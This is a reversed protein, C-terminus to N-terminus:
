GRKKAVIAAAALAVPIVALAVSANGTPPNTVVPAPEDVDDAVPEDDDDDVVPEDDDDDAVIDSDDDDDDLTEDDADVGADASVDDSEGAVLEVEMSDWFWMNSTALKMSHIYTAYNNTTAAGDMIADWDFSIATKTWDFYETNNLSMTYGENVILAGAFLNQGGWDMGLMGTGEPSYFWDYTHDGFEKYVTSGEWDNAVYVGIVEHLDRNAYTYNGYEQANLVAAAKAYESYVETKLVPVARYTNSTIKTEAVAFGVASQATNFKFTVTEFNEIADNLVAGVNKYGKDEGNVNANELYSIINRNDSKNTMFPAKFKTPAAFASSTADGAKGNFFIGWEQSQLKKNVSEIDKLDHKMNVVVVINAMQPGGTAPVEDVGAKPATYTIVITDDATTPVKDTSIGYKAADKWRYTAPIVNDPDTADEPTAVEAVVTFAKTEGAAIDDVTNNLKLDALNVAVTSKVGGITAIATASEVVAPVGPTGETAAGGGILTPKGQTNVTEVPVEIIDGGILYGETVASYGESWIDRTVTIPAIAKNTDIYQGSIIVKDTWQMGKAQIQVPTGATLPVNPFTAKLTVKGNTQNALTNVLNYNLTGSEVASVTTAMASVAVAGAAIAAITKKMNM